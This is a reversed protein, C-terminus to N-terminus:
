SKPTPVFYQMRKLSNDEISSAIWTPFSILTLPLLGMGITILFYKDILHLGNGIEVNGYSGVIIFMMMIPYGLTFFVSLPIRFLVKIDVRLYNFM